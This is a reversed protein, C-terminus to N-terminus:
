FKDNTTFEWISVMSILILYAILAQKEYRVNATHVNKSSMFGTGCVLRMSSMSASWFWGTMIWKRSVFPAAPRKRKKKM